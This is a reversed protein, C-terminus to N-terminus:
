FQNVVNVLLDLPEFIKVIADDLDIYVQLQVINNVLDFVLDSFDADPDGAM